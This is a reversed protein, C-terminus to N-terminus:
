CLPKIPRPTSGIYQFSKKRAFCLSIFKWRFVITVSAITSYNKVKDIVEISSVNSFIEWSNEDALSLILRLASATTTNSSHPTNPTQVTISYILKKNKFHFVLGKAFHPAIFLEKGSASTLKCSLFRLTQAKSSFRFFKRGGLGPSKIEKEKDCSYCELARTELPLSFKNPRAKFEVYM